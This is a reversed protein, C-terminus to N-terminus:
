LSHSYAGAAAPTELVPNKQNEGNRPVPHYTSVMSEVTERIDERNAYAREMLPELQALFEDPDCPIPSGIHILENATKRLGEEAM